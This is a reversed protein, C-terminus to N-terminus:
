AVKVQKLLHFQWVKEWGDTERGETDNKEPRQRQGPSHTSEAWGPRRVEEGEWIGEDVPSLNVLVLPLQM